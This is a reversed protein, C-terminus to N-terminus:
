RAARSMVAPPTSKIREYMEASPPSV